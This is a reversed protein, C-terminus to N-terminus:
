KSHREMMDIFDNYPASGVRLMGVAVLNSLFRENDRRIQRTIISKVFWRRRVYWKITNCIM